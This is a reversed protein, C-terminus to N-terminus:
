GNPKNEQPPTTPGASNTIAASVLSTFNRTTQTRVTFSRECEGCEVDSDRGDDFDELDDWREHLCFPCTICWDSDIVHQLDSAM